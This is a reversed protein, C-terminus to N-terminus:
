KSGDHKVEKIYEIERMEYCAQAIIARTAEAWAKIYSSREAESKPYHLQMPGRWGALKFELIM